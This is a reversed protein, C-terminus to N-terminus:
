FLAYTALHWQHYMLGQLLCFTCKLQFNSFIINTKKAHTEMKIEGDMHWTAIPFVNQKTCSSIIYYIYSKWKWPFSAPPASLIKLSYYIERCKIMRLVLYFMKQLQIALIGPFIQIEYKSYAGLHFNDFHVNSCLLM